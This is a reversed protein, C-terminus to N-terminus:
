TELSAISDEWRLGDFPQIEIKRNQNSDLCQDNVSYGSPHSLPIYFSKIGCKRCFQHDATHTNFTYHILAADGRVLTFDEANVILHLYGSKSCISCNCEVVQLHLPARLTFRVAQCHCGGNHVINSQRNDGSMKESPYADCRGIRVDVRLLSRLIDVCNKGM